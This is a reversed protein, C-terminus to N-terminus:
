LPGGGLARVLVEWPNDQTRILAQRLSPQPFSVPRLTKGAVGPTGTEVERYPLRGFPITMAERPHRIYVLLVFHRQAVARLLSAAEGGDQWFGDTLLVLLGRRVQAQGYFDLLPQLRTLRETPQFSLLEQFAGWVFSESRRPPSFFVVSNTFGLWQVKDGVKLATLAIMAGAIAAQRFKEPYVRMSDSLDLAITCTIQREETALWLYPEGRRASLAWHIRRWPEGSQYPRADAFEVGEGRLTSRYVGILLGEVPRGLRWRLRGVAQLVERVDVV